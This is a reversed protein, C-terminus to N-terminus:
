ALEGFVSREVARLHVRMAAEAGAADRDRLAQVIADHELNAREMAPGTELRERLRGWTDRNRNAQVIDFLALMLANGAALAITRHLRFDLQEWGPWDHVAAMGTLCAGIEVLERGTAHLAALRALPPELALRAAMVERPNTLDQAPNASGPGAGPQLRPGFFTGKGVHRWILGEAALKKLGTRLRNRTLGLAEALTREPPLRDQQDFAAQRIYDRLRGLDHDTQRM